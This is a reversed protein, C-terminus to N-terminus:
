YFRDYHLNTVSIGRELVLYKRVADVMPPPGAIYYEFSNDMVPHSSKLYEHLYGTPYSDNSEASTESVVPIYQQSTVFGSINSFYDFPVIDQETRAGYYLVASKASGRQDVVGMLISVMPGLGSGGAICVVGGTDNSVLHAISYPTDLVVELNSLKPDFLINSAEGSPVRKITFKWIGQDNATNSMSYSRPGDVGPIFIKAYQGPLFQAKQKSRFSYEWLDHTLKEVDILSAPIKQPAYKSQYQTDLKIEITCDSLAHSICALHKGKRRDSAKLGQTNDLDDSVNGEILTYKCSGCGGANCEYPVGAGVRTLGSLLTDNKDIDWFLNSGKLTIRHTQKSSTSSPSTM